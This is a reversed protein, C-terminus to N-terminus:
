SKCLANRENKEILYKEFETDNEKPQKTKDISGPHHQEKIM